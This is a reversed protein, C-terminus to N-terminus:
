WGPNDGNLLDPDKLHGREAGLTFDVMIQKIQEIQETSVAPTEADSGTNTPNSSTPQDYFTVPGKGLVTKDQLSRSAIDAAHSHASSVSAGLAIGVLCLGAASTPLRMGRNSSM